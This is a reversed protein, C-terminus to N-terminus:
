FNNIIIYYIALSVAAIAAGLLSGVQYYGYKHSEGPETQNSMNNSYATLTAVCFETLLQALPYTGKQM